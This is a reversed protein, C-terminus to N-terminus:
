PGPPWTGYHHVSGDDEVLRAPAGIGHLWSPALVGRALCASAITAARVCSFAAVSAARWVQRETRGTEPDVIHTVLEEATDWTRDRASATALAAGGPLAVTMAPDDPTDPARVQWGGRPAPGATAVDRGLSVLVGVDFTAAVLAACRDAARALATAGLDLTVGEPVVLRRGDLWVEEWDPPRYVALQGLQVHRAAGASVLAGHHDRDALLAGVTPDLDGETERAAELALGVMEALLPSVERGDGVSAIESDPRARNCAVDVAALEGRVLAAADDRASASTVVVRAPLDWFTWQTTHAAGLGTGAAATLIPWQALQPPPEEPPAAGPPPGQGSGRASGSEPAQRRGSNGFVSAVSAVALLGRWVM